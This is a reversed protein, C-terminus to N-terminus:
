RMVTGAVTMFMWSLMVGQSSHRLSGAASTVSGRSTSGLKKKRGMGSHGNSTALVDPDIIGATNRTRTLFTTPFTKSPAGDLVTLADESLFVLAFGPAPVKVRCVNNDQDCPIVQVEEPGTLRGDSHFHHGFTQLNTINLQLSSILYHLYQSSWGLHLQGKAIRLICDFIQAFILRESFFLITWRFTSLKLRDLHLM